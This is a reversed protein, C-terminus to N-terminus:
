SFRMLRSHKWKKEYGFWDLGISKQMVFSGIESGLKWGEDTGCGQVMMEYEATTEAASQNTLQCFHNFDKGDNEWEKWVSLSELRGIQPSLLHILFFEWRKCSQRSKIASESRWPDTCKRVALSSNNAVSWFSRSAFATCSSHSHLSRRMQRVALFRLPDNRIRISSGAVFM